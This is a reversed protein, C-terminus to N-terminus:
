ELRSAIKYATLLVLTELLITVRRTLSTVRNQQITSFNQFIRGAQTTKKKIDISLLLIFVVQFYIYHTAELEASWTYEAEMHIRHMCHAPSIGKLDSIKWGLAGQIDRLVRM